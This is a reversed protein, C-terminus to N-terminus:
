LVEGHTLQIRLQRAHEELSAVEAHQGTALVELASAAINLFRSVLTVRQGVDFSGSVEDTILSRFREHVDRQGFDPRDNWAHELARFFPEPHRIVVQSGERGEFCTSVRGLPTKLEAVYRDLGIVSHCTGFPARGHAARHLTEDNREHM